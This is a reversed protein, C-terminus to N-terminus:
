KEEMISGLLDALTLECIYEIQENKEEQSSVEINLIMDQESAPLYTRAYACCYEEIEGNTFLRDKVNLEYLDSHDLIDELIDRYLLDEIPVNKYYEILITM